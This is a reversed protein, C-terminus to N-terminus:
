QLKASIDSEKVLFYEEKDVTLQEGWSFFVTDGKKLSLPILKGDIIKGEGLAIVKGEKPGKHADHSDPLIIGTKSKQDNKIEKILVRDGLPIISRKQSQSTKPM